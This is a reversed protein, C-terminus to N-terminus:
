VGLAGKNPRADIMAAYEPARLLHYCRAILRREPWTPKALEAAMAPYEAPIDYHIDTRTLDVQGLKVCQPFLGIVDLPIAPAPARAPLGLLEAVLLGALDGQGRLSLHGLQTCRPNLEILYPISTASDVIFDLGYFGTLGLKEVLLRAATVMPPSDIVRVVVAAGTRGESSLVEVCVAGLLRGRSCALMANAPHGTVFRQVTVSPRPARRWDWLSLTDGNVLTRKLATSLGIPRSLARFARLAEDLSGVIRVGEGGSTGDIKLVAEPGFRDLWRGLEDETGVSATQPVPIGLEGALALLEQRSRVVDHARPDGFSAEILPRWKPRQRYLIHLQWVVQDNCPVILAPQEIELADELSELSRLTRYTHARGAGPVHRLPHGVPSLTSAHVGREIFRLCLRAGLAWWSTAAFLVRPAKVPDVIANM